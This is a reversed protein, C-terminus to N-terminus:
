GNYRMSQNIQTPLSKVVATRRITSSSFVGSEGCGNENDGYMMKENLGKKTEPKIEDVMLCVEEETKGHNKIVHGLTYRIYDKAVKEPLLIHKKIKIFLFAREGKRIDNLITGWARKIGHEKFFASLEASSWGADFLMKKLGQNYNMVM